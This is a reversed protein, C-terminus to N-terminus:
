GWLLHLILQLKKDPDEVIRETQGKNQKNKKAPVSWVLAQGSFERELGM